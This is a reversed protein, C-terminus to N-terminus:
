GKDDWESYLPAKTFGKQPVVSFHSFLFKHWKKIEIMKLQQPCSSNILNKITSNEYIDLFITAFMSSVKVFLGKLCVEAQAIWFYDLNLLTTM